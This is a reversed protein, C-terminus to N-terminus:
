RDRENLRSQAEVLGPADLEEPREPEDARARRDRAEPRLLRGEEEPREREMAVLGVRALREDLADPRVAGGLRSAVVEPEREGREAALELRRPDGRPRDDDGIAQVHPEVRLSV